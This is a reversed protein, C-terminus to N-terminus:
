ELNKRLIIVNLALIKIRITIELRKMNENTIRNYRKPHDLM